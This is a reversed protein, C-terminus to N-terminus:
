VLLRSRADVGVTEAHEERCGLVEVLRRKPELTRAEGRSPLARLNPQSVPRYRRSNKM